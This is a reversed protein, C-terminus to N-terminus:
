GGVRGVGGGGGRDVGVAWARGVHPPPPPPPRFCERVQTRPQGPLADLCAKITAATQAVMGSAVAPASVDVVFLYVPAQPPRLMYESPAVLEVSGKSLEPRELRDRRQGESDLHAFYDHPVENVYGCINCRWQRGNNVWSVFPNM